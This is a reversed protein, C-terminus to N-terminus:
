LTRNTDIEHLPAKIIGIVQNSNNRAHIYGDEITCKSICAHPYKEKLLEVSLRHIGEHRLNGESLHITQKISRESLHLMYSGAALSSLGLLGIIVFLRWQIRIIRHVRCDSVDVTDGRGFFRSFNCLGYNVFIVLTVILHVVRDLEFGINSEFISFIFTGFFNLLLSFILPGHIVHFSLRRMLKRFSMAYTSEALESLMGICEFIM